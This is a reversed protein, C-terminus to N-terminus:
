AKFVRYQRECAIISKILSFSPMWPVVIDTLTSGKKATVFLSMTSTLKKKPDNYIEAPGAIRMILQPVIGNVIGFHGNYRSPISTQGGLHTQIIHILLNEDTIM